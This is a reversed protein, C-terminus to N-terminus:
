KAQSFLVFVRPGRPTHLAHNKEEDTQPTALGDAHPDNVPKGNALLMYNHTRHGPIDNLTLQWWGQERNFKLPSPQWNNFTGVVAVSVPQPNDRRWRFVKSFNVPRTAFPRPHSM